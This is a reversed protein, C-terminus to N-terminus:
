LVITWGIIWSIGIICFVLGFFLPSVLKIKEWVPLYMGTSEYDINKVSKQNNKEKYKILQKEKYEQAKRKTRPYYFFLIIGLVIFLSGFLITAWLPLGDLKKNELSGIQNM